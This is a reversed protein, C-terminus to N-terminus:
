PGLYQIMMANTNGGYIVPSAANVFAYPEIYDTTGNCPVIASAHLANTFPLTNVGNWSISRSAFSSGNLYVAAFVAYPGPNGAQGLQAEYVTRYKGARKPTYRANAADWWGHSDFQVNPMSVKTWTNSGIAADGVSFAAALYPRSVWGM